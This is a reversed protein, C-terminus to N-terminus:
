WDPLQQHKDGHGCQSCTFTILYGNEKTRVCSTGFRTSECEPCRDHKVVWKEACENCKVTVLAGEAGSSVSVSGLSDGHCWETRARRARWRFLSSM